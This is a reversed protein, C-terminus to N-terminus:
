YRDALRREVGDVNQKRGEVDEFKKIAEQM